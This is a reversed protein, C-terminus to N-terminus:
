MSSRFFVGGPTPTCEHLFMETKMAPLVAIHNSAVTMAGQIRGGVRLFGDNRCPLRQEEGAPSKPAMAPQSIPMELSVSTLCWFAAQAKMVQIIPLAFARWYTRPPPVGILAIRERQIVIIHFMLFSYKIKM